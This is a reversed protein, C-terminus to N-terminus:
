KYELPTRTLERYIAFVVGLASIVLGAWQPGLLPALCERLVGSQAEFFGVLITIVAAQYTKSKIRQRLIELM